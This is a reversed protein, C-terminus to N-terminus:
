VCIITTEMHECVAVQTTDMDDWLQCGYTAQLICKALTDATMAPSIAIRIPTPTFVTLTWTPPPTTQIAVRQTNNNSPRRRPPPPPPPPAPPPVMSNEEEENDVATERRASSRTRKM